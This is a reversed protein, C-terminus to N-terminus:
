GDHSTRVRGVDSDGGVPEGADPHTPRTVPPAGPVPATYTQRTRVVIWAELGLWAPVTLGFAVAFVPRSWGEAQDLVALVVVLLVMKVVWSGLVVAGLAGPSLRATLVATLVTLGFFVVPIALGLLAGALGAAGDVLWGVGLALPLAVSLAILAVRLM